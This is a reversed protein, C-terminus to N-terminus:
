WISKEKSSDAVPAWKAQVVENLQKMSPLAKEEKAYTDRRAREQLTQANTTGIKASKPQLVQSYFLYFGIIVALVSGVSIVWFMTESRKQQQQYDVLPAEASAPPRGVVGEAGSAASPRVVAM